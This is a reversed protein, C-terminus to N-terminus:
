ALMLCTLETISVFRFPPPFADQFSNSINILFNPRSQDLFVDIDFVLGRHIGEEVLKISRWVFGTETGVCNKAHAKAHGFSASRLLRTIESKRTRSGSSSVPLQQNSLEAKRGHTQGRPSWSVKQEVREKWSREWHLNERLHDALTGLTWSQVQTRLREWARFKLGASTWLEAGDNM